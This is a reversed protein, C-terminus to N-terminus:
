QTEGEKRPNMLEDFSVPKDTAKGQGVVFDVVQEELVMAELSGMAQRNNRYYDIVQKPDEYGSAMTDLEAKVREADLKIEKASILERIILGLAVRRSAEEKFVEDPFNEPKVQGGFRSLAQQRLRDIEDKVLAEPLELPHAKHLAEMVQDKVRAKVAQGVEREMNSRVDERLKDVSGDEIGFAKAFEENVEPLTPEKVEQVKIAFQATKGKLNEAPYDEPFPVDITKEEGPKLGILQSEFAELMRGEGLEVSMAEGKGGDFAEGDLSGDFDVIVQDGKQAAREVAVFEKRQRRLSEIVKDVDAAGIEVQPREVTVGSLDAIEVKPFVDFTATYELGKGPEMAKPEISPNGAPELKEQQIAEQYSSQLVESVVEQFVGAGYRQEVVKLPVKGPRFGDIKVRKSLSKLRRDVEQEIREPPVQVTMRRQLNNVTEVSVQM